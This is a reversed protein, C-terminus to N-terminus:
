RFHPSMFNFTAAPPWKPLMYQKMNIIGQVIELVKHISQPDNTLLFQKGTVM